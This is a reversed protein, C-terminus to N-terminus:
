PRWILLPPPGIAAAEVSASSCRRARGARATAARGAPTSRATSASESTAVITRLGVRGRAGYAVYIREDGRALSAGLALVGPVGLVPQTPADPGVVDLPAHRHKPASNSLVQVVPADAADRSGFVADGVLNPFAAVPSAGDLAVRAPGTTQARPTPVGFGSGQVRSSKYLLGDSNVLGYAVLLAGDAVAVDPFRAGRVGFRGIKSAGRGTSRVLLFPAAPDGSDLM